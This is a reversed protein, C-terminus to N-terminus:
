GSVNPGDAVSLWLSLPARQSAPRQPHRGRWLHRQRRSLAPLHPRHGAPQHGGHLVFQGDSRRDDGRDASRRLFAGSRHDRRRLPRRRGQGDVAHARGPHAAGARRHLARGATGLPRQFQEATSVRLAPIIDLCLHGAVIADSTESMITSPFGDALLWCVESSTAKLPYGIQQSLAAQWSCKVM